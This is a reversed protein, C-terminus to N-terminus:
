AGAPEGKKAKGPKKGSPEAVAVIAADDESFLEERSTPRNEVKVLELIFDVVKEEYLPARVQALANPNKQYLEIIQREQGPFNRAQAIVAQSLEQDSVQIANREGIKALVLGLRVRRRSISEYEARLEEDSKGADSPDLRGEKKDAEVQRWIQNFEAEVMRPPLPFDHAADLQDFLHRKAKSRSQGAHDAELRQRLVAKLESLGEMGFQKAFEDDPPGKKPARVTKVKTEFTAAKGKLTEVPYEAPFTVNLVREEGAKAGTLQEEFGPIFRGAGIVVQAGEAAGGEFAEGDVKGLFDVVVADGEAAAGDKDEYQVNASALEALADDVQEDSVAATPRVVAVTKLDVIEFDPMLELKLAFALDSEGAAVKALDSKLDLMPESAPRARARELTQETGQKVAEEIIERMISAGYIKRIHSVPVKGSRFGKLQVRPQVELIKADLRLALDAAPVVVDYVRLLGDSVSETLQM